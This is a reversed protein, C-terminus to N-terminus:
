GVPAAALSCRCAAAALWGSASVNLWRHFTEQTVGKADRQKAEAMEAEVRAGVAEPISFELARAAALHARAPGLGAAAAAAEVAAAGTAPATVPALRLEVEGCGKLLTRGASLVTVPADAPQDLAFFEFDYAVKQARMVDQLASLNRLGTESLAGAQMAAEDLLLQTGPALQLPGSALRADDRARRPWWPGANLAPVSLPLAAARPVLAAVAAAAAAGFPSLGEKVGAGGPAAAPCGTLNLPLTGLAGADKTRVHVRSVLQLLLFEAALDDGGLVVSLFGLACARPAAAFAAAAAPPLPSTEPALLLAHLRPVRSTPLHSALAEEELLSLPLAAPESASAGSAALHAAALEPVRSLVGLVEIVENLKVDCDDYVQFPCRPAVPTQAPNIRPSSSASGVTHSAAPHSVIVPEPCSICSVYVMVAGAPIDDAAAAGGGAEAGLRQRTAASDGDDLAADAQGSADGELMSMSVADADDADAAAMGEAGADRGRKAGGGAAAAAAAAAAPLSAAAEAAQAERVWATEGPVPVLLLPRREAFRTEAGEPLAADLEDQYRSSQWSGDARRFEGVYYEPNPM